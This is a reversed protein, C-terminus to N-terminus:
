KRRKKTVKKISQYVIEGLQKVQAPTISLPPMLVIVDGLPRLIAGRDRAELIVRHGMRLAPDYPKNTKPDAVLELAGMMGVRRTDGVHKLEGCNNLAEVFAEATSGLNPLTQEVLLELSASAAACALPNGTYTHGHFFTKNLDDHDFFAEYIKEKMATAALPLYGGTIGKAMAMLDPTVEEHECAFVKGTRGFGTAVEDVILLIDLEDCLRRLKRLFGTPAPHMGAAGQMLPEVIVAAAQEAGERLAAEVKTVCEAAYAARDRSKPYPPAYPYPLAPSDFLLPQYLNHFTEIGGVSVSGITDGHYADSFRYFMSKEPRGRHRWYAFAIKIAVEVATAGNDSYFIRSLEGPLHQVIQAAFRVAPENTLGLLTSHAIHQLQERVAADIVTVHHGHINAWLSSVGDIYRNGESDILDIGDGAVIVPFDEEMWNAMQTFPHWIHERDLKRLEETNKKMNSVRRTAPEYM